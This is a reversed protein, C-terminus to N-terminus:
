MCGPRTSTIPAPASTQRRTRSRSASTVAAPDRRGDGAFVINKVSNGEADASRAGATAGAAGCGQACEASLVRIVLAVARRRRVAEANIAKARAPPVTAAASVCGRGGRVGVGPAVLFVPEGLGADGLGPLDGLAGVDLDGHDVAAHVALVRVQGAHEGAADVDGAGAAGSPWFLMPALGSCPVRTAVMSAPRPCWRRPRRGGLGAGAGRRDVTPGSPMTPTAGSAWSSDTEVQSPDALGPPLLSWSWIGSATRQATSLPARTM